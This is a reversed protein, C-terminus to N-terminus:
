EKRYRKGSWGEAKMPLGEAWRPKECLLFNFEEVSGHGTSKESILEDHVTLIVPYGAAEVNMIGHCMLDRAAAQVLNEALRGPTVVQRTFQHTQSNMTWIVIAPRMAQQMVARTKGTEPDLEYLLRGHDDYVHEEWPVPRQQVEPKFYYLKRGSPLKMTVWKGNSEFSIRGSKHKV